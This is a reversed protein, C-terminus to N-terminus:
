PEEHAAAPFIRRRAAPIGPLLALALFVAVGWVRDWHVITDVHRISNVDIEEPDDQIRERGTRTLLARADERHKLPGIGDAHGDLYGVVRTQLEFTETTFYNDTVIEELHTSKGTLLDIAKDFSVDRPEAWHIDLGGVEILAISNSTGDTVDRFGVTQKPPWLTDNGVIAVYDTTGDNRGFRSIRPSAFVEADFQELLPRNHPSDWPEDFHLKSYIFNGGLYPLLLVRWSYLPQGEEDTVYPPPLHGNIDHYNQIALMLQKAHNLSHTNYNPPRAHQIAPFLLLGLVVLIILLWYGKVAELWSRHRVRGLWVVVLVVALILGGVGFVTLSAAVL